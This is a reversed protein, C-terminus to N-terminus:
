CLVEYYRQRKEEEKGWLEFELLAFPENNQRNGNEQGGSTSV